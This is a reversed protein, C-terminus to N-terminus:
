PPCQRPAGEDDANMENTVKGPISDVVADSSLTPESSFLNEYFNQVMGKIEVQDDCRSGDERALSHIKNAKKRASAHAHFFATNRDGERLWDVRSRQCAMVEEREFLECLDKEACRIDDTSGNEIRLQKLKHELKQIKNRIHGFSECSWSKLSGAVKHLTSWTAHLSHDDDDCETWAKEMVEKYDPARLWAAEFRFGHQVPMHKINDSLKALTIYIALHESTTTIINEVQCDDYSNIFAENDVARDLRVKVHDEACQRNSWTFKPGSFGLDMLGCTDLCDRFLAMQAESRDRASCHEDQTLAENFDGCCIWPGNWELRLRYLLTWFEHRLERRAEGYVFTARCPASGESSFMMDLCHANFGKLTVTYQPLWFLALGGSLRKKNSDTGSDIDDEGTVPPSVVVLVNGVVPVSAAPEPNVKPRYEKRKHGTVKSGGGQALVVEKGSGDPATAKPKRARPKKPKVPSNVEGTTDKGHPRASAYTQSSPGNPGSGPKSSQNSAFSSQGSNSCSQKKKREDPVCLGPGHYPLFGEADRDAPTACGLSSHGLLGCSFCFTPLQEYMVAYYETTQRKQSFVDVDMKKVRGVCEALNKGWQDNMLSFPLSMFRAWLTLEEFRYEHPRLNKDFENLIVGHKSVHWPSGDLVRLKDRECAFEAMFQNTGMSRLELGKPNGWAPRLAASITSIHYPNPALVKGVLAWEPCGFNDDNMDEPVFAKSEQPTLKLRQLMEVVGDGTATGAAPISSGSTEKSPRDESQIAVSRVAGGGLNNAEVASEKEAM